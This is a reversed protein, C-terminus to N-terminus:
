NNDNDNGGLRKHEVDLNRSLNFSTVKDERKM